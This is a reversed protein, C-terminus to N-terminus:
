QRCSPSVLGNEQRLRVVQAYANRLALRLASTSTLLFTHLTLGRAHLVEIKQYVAKHM